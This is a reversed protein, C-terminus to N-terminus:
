LVCLRGNFLTLTPHQPVLNRDPIQEPFDSWSTGDYSLLHIRRPGNNKIACYLRGEVALLSLSEIVGGGWGDLRPGVVWNESSANPSREYLVQIKEGTYYLCVLEDGLAAMSVVTYPGWDGPPQRPPSWSESHHVVYKLPRVQPNGGGAFFALFLQNGRSALAHPHSTVAEPVPVPDQWRPLASGLNKSQMVQTDDRYICWPTARHYALAPDAGRAVLPEELALWGYGDHWSMVLGSSGPPQFVLHSRQDKSIMAPRNLGMLANRAWYTETWTQEDFDFLLTPLTPLPQPFVLPDGESLPAVRTTQVTGHVIVRGATQAADPVHVMLSLTREVSGAGDQAVARLHFTTTQAMNPVTVSSKGTVPHIRGDYHLALYTAASADWRLTVSGGRPVSLPEATFSRLHFGLPFKGVELRTTQQQWGSGAPPRWSASIDVPSLGVRQNVPLGMLQFTLGTDTDFTLQAPTGPRPAFTVSGATANVTAQWGELSINATVGSMTSCLDQEDPGVRVTVTFSQCEVPTEAALSAVVILDGTAPAGSSPSIRLPDPNVLLDFALPDTATTRGAPPAVVHRVLSM